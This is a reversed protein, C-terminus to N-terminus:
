AAESQMDPLREIYDKQWQKTVVTLSKGFVSKFSDEVNGRIAADYFDTVKDNDFAFSLYFMFDGALFYAQDSNKSDFDSDSPLRAAKPLVRPAWDMELVDSAVMEAYGEVIWGDSWYPPDTYAHVMEHVITFTAGEADADKDWLIPSLVVWPPDTDGTMAIGGHESASDGLSWDGYETATKPVLILLPQDPAKGVYDKVDAHHAAATDAIDVLRSRPVNGIVVFNDKEVSIMGSATLDVVDTLDRDFLAAEM